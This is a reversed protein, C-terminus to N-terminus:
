DSCVRHVPRSGMGYIRSPVVGKLCEGCGRYALTTRMCHIMPPDIGEPHNM